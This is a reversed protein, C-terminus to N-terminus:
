QLRAAYTTARLDSQGDRETARVSVARTPIDVALHAYRQAAGRLLTDFKRDQATLVTARPERHAPM